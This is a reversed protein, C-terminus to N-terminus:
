TQMVRKQEAQRALDYLKDYEGSKQCLNSFASKADQLLTWPSDYESIEGNSLVLIRDYFIITELRHAICLITADEMESRITHQIHEDTLKDTPTATLRYCDALTYIRPRVLRLRVRM